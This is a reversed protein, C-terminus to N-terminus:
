GGSLEQARKLAAKDNVNFFMSEVEGFSKVENEYLYRTNLSDVFRTLKLKNNELCDILAPLCSSNYVAYLPQLKNDIVPVVCDYGTCNDLMYLALDMNIFPMDCGLLFITDYRSHYLGSHIGAMPGMHPYVDTYVAPGMGHYLEPENTIIMLDDFHKIFKEIIIELVSRGCIEAFAKNFNMRSSRGGSLIVGSARM